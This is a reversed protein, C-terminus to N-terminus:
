EYDEFEGSIYMKELNHGERLERKTAKCLPTLTGQESLIFLCDPRMLRNSMLNTNHTTFVVQTDPFTKKFFEVVKRSMEYHYFADFEDLFIMSPKRKSVMLFYRVFLNFAIRTGSSANSYFPVLKKHKFYLEYKNDPLEELVLKCKIGMENLFEEFVEVQNNEKLLEYYRGINRRLVPQDTSASSTMSMDSVFRFLKDLISDSEFTLNNFLWRLFSLSKPSDFDEEDASNQLYRDIVATEAKIKSLNDVNHENKIFDFWFILENNIKFEEYILDSTDAKKYFYVVEDKEFQFVYKFSVYDDTTDANLFSDNRTLLRTNSVLLNKIDLLATGLNTKGSANRGYILMKSILGEYICDSNFQYGGVNSFDISIEEKFNKYNKISFNKIM